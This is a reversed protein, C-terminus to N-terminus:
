SNDKLNAKKQELFYRLADSIFASNTRYGHKKKEKEFRAWLKKDIRFSQRAVTDKEM